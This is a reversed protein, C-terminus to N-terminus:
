KVDGAKEFPVEFFFFDKGTAAEKIGTLYFKSGPIHETQFYFFGSASEGDLLMKAAFARTTIEPTNLPGKKDHHPLPIPTTGPMRPRKVDLGLYILDSVPTAEVHRNGVDVYETQLDLRLAKGTDNKLVVLVPVVGYKTPNLKGFASRAQEETVFPVAAITIKDITEHNPYSEVPGPKFPTKDDAAAATISLLVAVGFVSLRVASTEEEQNHAL